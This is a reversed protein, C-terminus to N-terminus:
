SRAVAQFTTVCDLCVYLDKGTNDRGVCEWGKPPLSQDSWAWDTCLCCHFRRDGSELRAIIAEQADIKQHALELAELLFQSVKRAQGTSEPPVLSEDLHSM